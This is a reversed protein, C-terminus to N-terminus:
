LWLYALFVASGSMGLLCFVLRFYTKKVYSDMVLYMAGFMLWSAGSEISGRCMYTGGIVLLLIGTIINSIEM